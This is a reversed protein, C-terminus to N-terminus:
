ESPALIPKSNMVYEMVERHQQNDPNIGFLKWDITKACVSETLKETRFVQWLLEYHLGSVLYNAMKDVIFFSNKKSKLALIKAKDCSDFKRLITLFKQNLSVWGPNGENTLVSYSRLFQSKVDIYHEVSVLLPSSHIQLLTLAVLDVSFRYHIPILFYNLSKGFQKQFLDLIAKCSSFTRYIVAKYENVNIDSRSLYYIYLQLKSFELSLSILENKLLPSTENKYGDLIQEFMNLHILKSVQNLGKVSDGIIENMKLQVLSVKLLSNIFNDQEAFKSQKFIDFNAARNVIFDQHFGNYNSTSLGLYVLWYNSNINVYKYIRERFAHNVGAESDLEMKTKKSFENIFTLKHLGFQLALSKMLSIYNVSICDQIQLARNDPLPWTTLILLAVLSYLSRPTNFWCDVVVLNQVHAALDSYEESTGETLLSTVLITWFLMNSEQYIAHLKKQFFSSPLISLHPCYSKEFVKFLSVARDYSVSVLGLNQSSHITFSDALSLTPIPDIYIPEHEAAPRSPSDLVSQIVSNAPSLPAPVHLNQILKEVLLAKKSILGDLKHHLEQVEHVIRETIDHERKPPKTVDLKCPLNKRSCYSCPFPSTLLADCKTKNHRCRSCLKLVKEGKVLAKPVILNRRRQMIISVM